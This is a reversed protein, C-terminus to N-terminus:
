VNDIDIKFIKLIDEPENVIIDAGADMLSQVTRFGWSVGIGPCGLNHASEMDVDSDGVWVANEPKVSLASLIERPVQPDPKKPKTDLAGQVVDFVGDKFLASVMGKAAIDPKNTCVVLIKGAKKLKSLVNEMGGYAHAHDLKIKNYIVKFEEYAKDLAAGELKGDFARQVLLKAGNGVFNKYDDVTWVPSIGYSGLLKDCALGLDVITNVLTGDLDFIICKAACVVSFASEIDCASNLRITQKMFM